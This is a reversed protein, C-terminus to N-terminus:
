KGMNVEIFKVNSFKKKTEDSFIYDTVVGDIESFSVLNNLRNVGVKDHDALYYVKKSNKMMVTHLLYYASSGIMGDVTVGGTSFFCIDANFKMANEVAMDGGLMAPAEVMEGGLCICRINYQSLYAILSMNNTIVTIDKKNVIFKGVYESTTTGDVFVIDGDSVLEAAAEGIKNKVPKMLHYRFPLAVGKKKVLEVGGYTRTVLNQQEMVNLDRNITATSYHLQETLYKVSVYGNTKLIALINDIREKQYMLDGVKLFISFDDINQVCKFIKYLTISKNYSM